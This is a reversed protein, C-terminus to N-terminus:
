YYHFLPRGSLCPNNSCDKSFGEIVAEYLPDSIVIPCLAPYLWNFAVVPLFTDLSNFYM